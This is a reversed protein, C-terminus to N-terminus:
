LQTGYSTPDAALTYKNYELPSTATEMFRKVRPTPATMSRYQDFSMPVTVPELNNDAAYKNLQRQLGDHYGNESLTQFIWPKQFPTNTKVANYLDKIQSTSILYTTDLIEPNDVVSQLAYGGNTQIIDKYYGGDPAYYKFKAPSNATEPEIVFNGGNTEILKIVEEQAKLHSDFASMGGSIYTQRNKTYLRFADRGATIYSKDNEVTTNRGLQDKATGTFLQLQKTDTLCGQATFGRQTQKGDTWFALDDGRLLPM